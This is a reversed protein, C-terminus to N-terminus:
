KVCELWEKIKEELELSSYREHLVGNLHQKSVGLLKALQTQTMNIKILKIKVRDSLKM